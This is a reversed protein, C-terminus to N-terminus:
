VRIETDREQGCADIFGMFMANMPRPLMPEAMAVL